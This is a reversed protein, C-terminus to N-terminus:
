RVPEVDSDIINGNYADIEYEYESQGAVYFEIDYVPKGDDRELKAKTFKVKDATLGAKKLAIAKAEDVTITAGSAQSKTPTSAVISSDKGVSTAKESGYYDSADWPEKSEEIIKGTLADIEYEYEFKGKVYFEIDYVQRGDDVNAMAKTFSVDKASLGAKALAIEKAKAVGIDGTQTTKAAAEADETSGTVKDAKNTTEAPKAQSSASVPESKSEATESESYGPLAESDKEIISGSKSDVTYEYNTGNANFEIDYVFKGSDFDFETRINEADEPLVGADVYAFNRASEEGIANNKAIRNAAFASGGGLVIVGALASAIIATKKM